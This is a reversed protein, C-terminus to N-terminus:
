AGGLAVGVRQMEDNYVEYTVRGLERKDVELVTTHSGGAGGEAIAQKIGQLLSNVFSAMEGNGEAGFHSSRPLIRGTAVDPVDISAGVPLRIEPMSREAENVLADVAGGLANIAEDESREIGGALGEMMYDGISAFVKSPSAIGLTAKVGSVLSAFKETVWQKLGAWADSIGQKIGAVINSGIELFRDKADSFVARINAWVGSFYEAWTSVIGKIAEWAGSFDGALVSEVIAFIGEITAWVTSFYGSAADWIATIAAWASSFFSGLVDAVVSFVSQIGAWIDSFYPKAAAWVAEIAAWAQEFYGQIASWIEEVATRFEENTNWLVILATVVGAILTAVLVFPNANMVANLLAQATSAGTTATKFAQITSVVGSIMSAVNWAVFGAAIGALLAIITDGNDIIVSVFGSIKASFAEWDISATWSQLGETISQIIPILQELFPEGAAAMFQRWAENLNGQVNEWGEAERSAQGMAGSLEQADLVMQLLTQQKQIETLDNFKVGFLEMAAANRTTETASLGLAADNEYNGKLFSQLSATTDELSRDYYAAGDAAAQLAMEMLEMSETADGGSARAFAYIQTGLSNLRTEVIGANEAVRGIAEGAANQLSGFTQEFQSNEAKVSAAAEIFDGAMDKISNGLTRLGSTIVEALLNGKLIDAFGQAGDGASEFNQKMGGLKKAADETELEVNIVVEGDYNAM